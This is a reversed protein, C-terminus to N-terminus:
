IPSSSATAVSSLAASQARDSPSPSPWTWGPAPAVLTRVAYTQLWDDGVSRPTGCYGLGFGVRATAPQQGRQAAHAPSCEECGGMCVHYFGDRAPLRHRATPWTSRRTCSQMREECGGLGEENEDRAHLRALPPLHPTRHQKDSSSTCRSCWNVPHARASVSFCSSVNSLLM